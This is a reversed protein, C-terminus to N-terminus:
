LQLLYLLFILRQSNFAQSFIILSLNFFIVFEYINLKKLKLCFLDGRLMEPM